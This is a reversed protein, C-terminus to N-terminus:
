PNCTKSTPVIAMDNVANHFHKGQASKGFKKPETLHNRLEHKETIGEHYCYDAGERRKRRCIRRGRAIDRLLRGSDESNSYLCAKKLPSPISHFLTITERLVREREYTNLRQRPSKREAGTSEFRHAVIYHFSEQIESADIPATELSHTASMPVGHFQLQPNSNTSAPSHLAWRMTDSMSDDSVTPLGTPLASHQPKRLRAFALSGSRKIRRGDDGGMRPQWFFKQLLLITANINRQPIAKKSWSALDAYEQTRLGLVVLSILAHRILQVTAHQFSLLKAAESIGAALSRRVTWPWSESGIRMKRSKLNLSIPIEFQLDNHGSTKQRPHPQPRKERVPRLSRKLVWRAYHDPLPNSLASSHSKLCPSSPNLTLGEIVIAFDFAYISNKSPDFRESTSIKKKLPEELIVCELMPPSFSRSSQSARSSFKVLAVAKLRPLM